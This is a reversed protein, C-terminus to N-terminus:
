AVVAVLARNGQHLPAPRDPVQDMGRGRGSALAALCEVITLHRPALDCEVRIQDRLHAPVRQDCWRRVRAVDLEPLGTQAVRVTQWCM